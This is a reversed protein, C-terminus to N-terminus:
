HDATITVLLLGQRKWLKNSPSRTLKPAEKAKGHPVCTDLVISSANRFLPNSVVCEITRSLADKKNVCVESSESGNKCQASSCNWSYRILDIHSSYPEPIRCQVRVTENALTCNLTPSPLPELVMLVFKISDKVSLSEFEYEDEDSSTLNFITLDGSISNLHIRDTFPQFVKEEFNEEKEVIKDKRKKWLIDKVPTSSATFFTVNKNVAGYLQSDCSIVDFCFVLCVVALVGAAWGPASGAAMAHRAM